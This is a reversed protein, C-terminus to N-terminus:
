LKSFIMQFRPFIALRAVSGVGVELSIGTGVVIRKLLWPGRLTASESTSEERKGLVPLLSNQIASISAAVKQSYEDQTILAEISKGNKDLSILRIKEGQSIAGGAHCVSILLFLSSLFFQVFFIGSRFMAGGLHHPDSDSFNLKRM